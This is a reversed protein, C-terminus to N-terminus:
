RLATENRTTGSPERSAKRGIRCHDHVGCASKATCACAPTDGHMTRYVSRGALTLVLGIILAVFIYELM